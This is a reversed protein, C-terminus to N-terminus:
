SLLASLQPLYPGLLPGFVGIHDALIAMFQQYAKKLGNPSKADRMQEVAMSLRAVAEADAKSQSLLEIIDRFLQENQENWKARQKVNKSGTTLNQVTGYIYTNVIQTVKDQPVPNSNVPAEGADPAEAEIELAFNLVRNRVNNLATIIGTAPIVKWAHWCSM